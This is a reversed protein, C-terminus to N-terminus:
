HSKPADAPKDSAKAAPKDKDGKGKGVTNTNPRVKEPASSLIKFKKVTAATVLKQGKAAKVPAATKKVTEGATKAFRKEFREVRGATDLLKQQGTFFPHCKSCIDLKIIKQTSRSQFSNGCACSIATEVYNPHIAEKM